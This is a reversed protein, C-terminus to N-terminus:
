VGFCVPGAIGNLIQAINATWKVYPPKDTICRVGGSAAVLFAALVCAWRLGKVDVIWSMVLATIIFAIPGWNAFLAIDADTWDFAYESSAAIPGWTVWFAGQTFALLSYLILVYWRRKYVRIGDKNIGANSGRASDTSQSQTSSESSGSQITSYKSGLTKDANNGKNILLKKETEQNEM